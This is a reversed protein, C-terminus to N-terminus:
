HLSFNYELKVRLNVPVGNKTAPDFRIKRTGAVVEETLGYPLGQLVSIGVIRRDATFIANLIVTGMIKNDRAEKTYRVPEKYIIKPKVIEKDSEDLIPGSVQENHPATQYHERLLDRGFDGDFDRWVTHIHNADNQTNDYEVLFTPGQLRYYHPQKKEISGAWAFHIKKLDAKRLKELREAALDAPMRNLYEDLLKKFLEMQRPNFESVAIGAPALPDVKKANMTIIDPPATQEFIARARQKENLALLLDRALDEEAGLVRLGQRPGQRVEAPNSGFFSPTTAVMTGKVVTFNLSLHHGEVRWGWADKTSPTGFITFYYLEPDRRASGKELERLVLELEIITTAQVYGRQSLGTKLFDHALKRQKENLEKLPVGQRARPVFYWNLREEDQFKFVTKARQEPTLAAIFNKAGEAMETASRGRARVDIIAVVALLLVCALLLILSKTEM